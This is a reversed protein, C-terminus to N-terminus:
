CSGSAGKTRNHPKCLLQANNLDTTGGHTHALIHDAEYEKWPVVAESEMQGESICQQCLGRDRRYIAIRQSEDFARKTDKRILEFSNKAANEFFAQRIILERTRVEAASHQRNERFEIMMTDKLDDKRYREHFSIYFERLLQKIDSDIKYNAKLHRALMFMSLVVYDPTLEQVVGGDKAMPDDKFLAYLLNLTALTEKASRDNEFDQNGIGDKVVTADIWEVIADDKLDTVGKSELLVMRALLSLHQMRGNPRNLINFFRHKDSNEDVPKYSEFDFTIDDAYKVIFNRGLSSLRAHAIEMQNLSEGQQLRWFIETALKQHEPNRPDEIDTIEDVDFEQRDIYRRVEVPLKSYTKGPIDPHISKLSKPLIIEDAYFRQVTTIRQQGDVVEQITTDSDLRIKRLVIKPVYYGRVISDLLSQQKKKSWVTKRQYPPRTIYDDPYEHFDKIKTKSPIIKYDRSPDFAM